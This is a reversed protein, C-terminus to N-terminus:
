SDVFEELHVETTGVADINEETVGRTGTRRARLYKVMLLTDFAVLRHKELEGTVGIVVGPTARKESM